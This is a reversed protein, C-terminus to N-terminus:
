LGPGRQPAPTARGRRGRPAFRDVAQPGAHHGALIMKVAVNRRPSAQRPATSRRGDRRPRDPRRGSVTRGDGPAPEPSAQRGRVRGSSGEAWTPTDGGDATGPDAGGTWRRPDRPAGPSARTPPPGARRVSGRAILPDGANESQVAAFVWRRAAAVPRSTPSSPPVRPRRSSPGPRLRDADRPGPVDGRAQRTSGHSSPGMPLGGPGGASWGPAGRGSTSSGRTNRM